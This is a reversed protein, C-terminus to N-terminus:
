ENPAHMLRENRRSGDATMLVYPVFSIVVSDTETLHGRARLVLLDRRELEAAGFIKRLGTIRDDDWVGTKSVFNALDIHDIGREALAYPDGPLDDLTTPEWRVSDHTVDRVVARSWPAGGQSFMPYISFPWFEGENAAVLVAYLAVTSLLVRASRQYRNVLTPLKPLLAM